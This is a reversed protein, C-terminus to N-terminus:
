HLPPAFSSKQYVCVRKPGSKQTPSEKLCVGHIGTKDLMSEIDLWQLWAFFWVSAFRSMIALPYEPRALLLAAAVLHFARSM